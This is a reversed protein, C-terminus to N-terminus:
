MGSEMPRPPGMRDGHEGGGHGSLMPLVDMVTRQHTDLAAYLTRTAQARRDFAARMAAFNRDMRAKMRDLREPTTMAGGRDAQDGTTGHEGDRDGRPPSMAAVFASFATEQSPQISLVEHLAKTREAHRAEEHERMRAPDWPGQDAPPAGPGRVHAADQALATASAGAALVLSLLLVRPMSM